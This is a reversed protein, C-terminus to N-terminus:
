LGAFWDAIARRQAADPLPERGAALNEVIHDPNRTGTLVCTVAPHGLIWKLFLQAHSEADLEHAIRPLPRRHVRAFMAGEQFARNVLVAVGHHACADLLGDGAQPEALSYNVQVVDIGGGEVWRQMRPHADAQYHTIGLYRVRGAARAERLIELQTHLDRLNHVQVLDLRGRGLLEFSRALQREGFERGTTWLKTALFLREGVGHLRALEGLAAEARGYMPSTDVVRGGHAVFRHLVQGATEFSDGHDPVDFSQWTGLGVVPLREGSRPVARELIPTASAFVRGPALLSLGAGAAAILRRREPSQPKDDGQNMRANHCM